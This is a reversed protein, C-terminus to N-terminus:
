HQGHTQKDYCCFRPYLEAGSSPPCPLSGLAPACGWGALAWPASGKWRPTNKATTRNQSEMLLPAALLGPNVWALSCVPLFIVPLLHKLANGQSKGAIFQTSNAEWVSDLHGDRPLWSHHPLGRVSLVKWTWIGTPSSFETAFAGDMIVHRPLGPLFVTRLFCLQLYQEDEFAGAALPQMFGQGWTSKGPKSPWSCQM